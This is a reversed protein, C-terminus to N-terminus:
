ETKVLEVDGVVDSYDIEKWEGEQPPIWKYFTVKDDSFWVNSSSTVKKDYRLADRVCYWEPLMLNKTWYGSDQEIHREIIIKHADEEELLCRCTNCKVTPKTCCETKKKKRDPHFWM